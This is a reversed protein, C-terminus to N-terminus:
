ITFNTNRAIFEIAELARFNTPDVLAISLKRGDKAFPVMQYNRAIDRPVINLLEASIVRGQLEVYPIQFVDARAKALDDQKVVGQEELITVTPVRKQRAQQEAVELQKPTIAKRELLVSALDRVDTKALLATM